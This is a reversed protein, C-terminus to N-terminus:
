GLLRFTLINVENKFTGHSTMTLKGESRGIHIAIYTFIQIGWIIPFVIYLAAEGFIAGPCFAM